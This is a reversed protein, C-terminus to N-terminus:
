LEIFIRHTKNEKGKGTNQLQDWHSGVESNWDQLEGTVPNIELGAKNCLGLCFMDEQIVPAAASAVPSSQQTNQNQM